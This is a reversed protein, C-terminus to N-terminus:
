PSAKPRKVICVRYSDRSTSGWYSAGRAGVSVIRSVVGVGQGVGRDAEVDDQRDETFLRGQSNHFRPPDDEVVGTAVAVGTAAGLVLVCFWKVM